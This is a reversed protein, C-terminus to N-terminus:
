PLFSSQTYLWIITEATFALSESFLKGTELASFPIIFAHKGTAVLRQDM